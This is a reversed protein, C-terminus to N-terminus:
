QILFHLSKIWRCELRVTKVSRDPQIWFYHNGETPAPETVAPETVEAPIEQRM